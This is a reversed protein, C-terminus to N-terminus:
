WNDVNTIRSDLPAVTAKFTLAFRDAHLASPM